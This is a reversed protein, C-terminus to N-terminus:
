AINSLSFVPLYIAFILLTILLGLIIMLLPQFITTFFNLQFEEAIARDTARDQSPVGNLGIPVTAGKDPKETEAAIGLVTSASLLAVAVLSFGDRLTLKKM